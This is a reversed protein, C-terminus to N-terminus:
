KRKRGKIKKLLEKYRDPHNREMYERGEKTKMIREEQRKSYERGAFAGIIKKGVRTKAARRGIKELGEGYKEGVKIPANILIKKALGKLRKRM